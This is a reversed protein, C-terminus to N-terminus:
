ASKDFLYARDLAAKELDDKDEVKARAIFPARAERMRRADEKGIGPLRSMEVSVFQNPHLFHIATLEKEVRWGPPLLPLKEGSIILGDVYVCLVKHGMNELESAMKLSRLRTEAEIMGRAIVNRVKPQPSEPKRQYIRAKVDGALPITTTTGKLNPGGWFTVVPNDGVALMGYAALLIPKKVAKGEYNTLEGIAWKAYEPLVADAKTATWAACIYEVNFKSHGKWYDLENTHIYFDMRGPKQMFPPFLHKQKNPIHQVNAMVRVLGIHEALFEKVNDTWFKPSESRTNGRARINNPNPLPTTAAISHHASCQDIYYAHKATRQETIAYHNGPLNKRGLGNVFKPAATREPTWFPSAQLLRRALGGRNTTWQHVGRRDLMQLLQQVYQVIQPLEQTVINALEKLDLCQFYRPPYHRSPDRFGCLQPNFSGVVSLRDARVIRHRESAIKCVWGPHDKYFQNAAAIEQFIYTGAVIGGYGISLLRSFDEAPYVEGTTTDLIARINEHKGIALIRPQKGM